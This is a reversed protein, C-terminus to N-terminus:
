HFHKWSCDIDKKCIEPRYNYNLNRIYGSLIKGRNRGNKCFHLLLFDLKNELINKKNNNM